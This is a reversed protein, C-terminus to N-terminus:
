LRACTHLIQPIWLIERFMITLRIVDDDGSRRDLQGRITGLECLWIALQGSELLRRLMGRLVLWRGGRRRRRLGPLDVKRWEDQSAEMGELRGLGKM